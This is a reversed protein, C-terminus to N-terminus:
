RPIREARDRAGPWDAWARRAREASQRLDARIAELHWADAVDLRSPAPDALGVKFNADQEYFAQEDLAALQAAAALMPLVGALAADIKALTVPYQAQHASRASGIAVYSSAADTLAAARAAEAARHDANPRVLRELQALRGEIAGAKM